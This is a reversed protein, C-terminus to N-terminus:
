NDIIDLIKIFGNKRSFTSNDAIGTLRLMDEIVIHKIASDREDKANMDPGKNIEMIMPELNDNVAIDAGFLQFKINNHLKKDICVNGIYSKFINSLLKYIRSFFVDSIDHLQTEVHTIPQRNKDDLYTRLDGHTLPNTDYIKRDIYGTTINESIKTSNKKFLDPTYYMFGEDHVYVNIESGKCIVLLYFRMNIKRGNITYPDQLLEQAIVYNDNLGNKIFEKDNTIKIGQQQQINKKIIYLKNKDYEREFRLIDNKLFLNYSNPAFLKTKELGYYKVLNNWLREKGVINDANDIIFYKGNHSTQMENIEKEINDYNCPIHLNTHSYKKDKYRVNHKKLEESLTKGFKYNCKNRTWSTPTYDINIMHENNINNYNANDDFLIFLMTAFLLVCLLIKTLKM